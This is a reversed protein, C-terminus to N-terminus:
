RRGPRSAARRGATAEELHQGGHREGGEGVGRDVDGDDLDAHAAGPVGGVDGVRLDGDDGRDVISWAASGRSSPRGLDGALLGPDDLGARVAHQGLLRDLGGLHQQAARDLDVRDHGALAQLEADSARVSATPPCSTVSRPSAPSYSSTKRGSCPACWACLAATRAPPPRPTGRRRRVGLAPREVDVQHPGANAPTVEGPRSSTTRCSASPAHEVRRVVRGAGAAVASATPSAKPKVRSTPTNAAIASLSTRPMSSAKSGTSASTTTM